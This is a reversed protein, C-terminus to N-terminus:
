KQRFSNSVYRSVYVYHRPAPPAPRLPADRTTHRARATRAPRTHRARHTAPAGTPPGRGMVDPMSAIRIAIPSHRHAMPRAALTCARRNLPPLRHCTRSRTDQPARLTPSGSYTIVLVLSRTPHVLYPTTLPAELLAGPLHQLSDRWSPHATMTPRTVPGGGWRLPPPPPLSPAELLSSAGPFVPM